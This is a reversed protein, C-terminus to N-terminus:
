RDRRRNMRSVSAARSVFVRGSLVSVNIKNGCSILQGSRTGGTAPDELNCTAGNFAECPYGQSNYDAVQINGSTVCACTCTAGGGQGKPKAHAAASLTMVASVVACGLTVGQMARGSTRSM